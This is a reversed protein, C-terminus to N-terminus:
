SIKKDVYPSNVIKEDATVLWISINAKKTLVKLLPLLLQTQFVTLKSFDNLLIIKEKGSLIMQLLQLKVQDLLSLEDFKELFTSMSFDFISLWERLVAKHDSFKISSCFFLNETISLHPFFAAEDVILGMQKSHKQLVAEIFHPREKEINEKEKFFAYVSHNTSDSDDIQSIIYNYDTTSAAHIM